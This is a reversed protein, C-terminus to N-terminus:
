WDGEKNAVYPLDALFNALAAAVVDPQEIMAM